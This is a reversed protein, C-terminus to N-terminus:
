LVAYYVVIQKYEEANRLESNKVLSWVDSVPICWVISSCDSHAVSVWFISRTLEAESM